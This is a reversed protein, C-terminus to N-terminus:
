QPQKHVIFQGQTADGSSCIKGSIIVILHIVVWAVSWTPSRVCACISGENYIKGFTYCSLM